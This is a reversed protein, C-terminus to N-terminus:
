RLADKILVEWKEMLTNLSFRDRVEVARAGYRQRLEGDELLKELERSLARIDEPPVLVGDVGHRIIEAPGSPCDFSVVPLGCAMAECLAGPFAESRSSMAFVDAHAMREHLNDVWGPLMVQEELGKERILSELDDRDPGEGYIILNWQPFQAALPVFAEIMKQFQKEEALRGASIITGGQRPGKSVSCPSVIVPNHIVELRKFSLNDTFWKQIEQGLVVVAAARPYMFERLRGWGKGIPFQVPHCHETVIVPIDLGQSALLTLVNTTDMFSIVVDPAIGHLAKRMGLIRKFNGFLKDLLTDSASTLGINQVEVAKNLPYASSTGPEALTIISVERGGEVWHNAMISAIREAGGQGMSSICIVIHMSEQEENAM